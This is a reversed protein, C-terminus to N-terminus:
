RTYTTTTESSIGSEIGTGHTQLVLKHDTLSIIHFGGRSYSAPSIMVLWDGNVSYTGDSNSSPRSIYHFQSDATFQLHIGLAYTVTTDNTQAGQPGMVEQIEAQTWNGVISPSAQHRFSSLGIVGSILMLFLVGAKLKSDM